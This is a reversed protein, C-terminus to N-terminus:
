NPQRDWQGANKPRSARHGDRLRSLTGGHVKRTAEFEEDAEHEDNPQRGQQPEDDVGGNSRPVAGALSPACAVLVCGRQGGVHSNPHAATACVGALAQTPGGVSPHLM